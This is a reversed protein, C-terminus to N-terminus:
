GGAGLRVDGAVRGRVCWTEEGTTWLSRTFGFAAAGDGGGETGAGTGLIVLLM